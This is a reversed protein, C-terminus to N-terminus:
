KLLYLIGITAPGCHSAITAGAVTISIEEIPAMELLSKRLMEADEECGSHTIFVRHMDINTKNCEFDALLANLAKKRSGSIKEKVGLTGDARVTIIPRIHLLSGMINEMASCRGGKYLYELTDIVFATRVKPVTNRIEKEIEDQSLGQDRLEAAKLVLLGIGTSLNKSDVLRIDKKVFTNVSETAVNMTASLESSIGIYIGHDVPSFFTNFEMLSPASTKPLEGTKTVKQFLEEISINEGDHFTQNDIFVNLPLISIQHKKLLDRNLDSCSDSLIQIM